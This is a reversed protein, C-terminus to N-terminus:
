IRCRQHKFDLSNQAGSARKRQWVLAFYPSRAFIGIFASELQTANLSQIRWQFFHLFDLQSFANCM